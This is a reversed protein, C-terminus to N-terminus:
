VARRPNAHDRGRRESRGEPWFIKTCMGHRKQEHCPHVEVSVLGMEVGVGALEEKNFLPTAGFETINALVPVNLASTHVSSVARHTHVAEAFIADAGRKLVPKLVSLQPKWVKKNCLRRYAGYDFVPDDIRADVAAKVRDVMKVKCVIEKNPATVVANKQAVQDEIHFGAAGTRAGRTMEKVPVPLTLHVVGVPIQTESVFTRRDCRYDTRIDECM